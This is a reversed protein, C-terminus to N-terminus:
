NTSSHNKRALLPVKFFEVGEKRLMEEQTETSLGRIGRREAVGYHMKLAEEAFRQGVDDFERELRQSFEAWKQLMEQPGAPNPPQSEVQKEAARGAKVLGFTSPRRNIRGNGCVPCVLHRADLQASLDDLNDFWGEFCHGLACILDYVVM